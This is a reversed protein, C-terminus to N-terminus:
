ESVFRNAAALIAQEAAAIASPSEATKHQIYLGRWHHLEPIVLGYRFWMRSAIEHPQKRDQLMSKADERALILGADHASIPAVAGLEVLAGIVTELIDERTPSELAALTRLCPGDQGRQLFSAAIGPWDGPKMDGFFWRAALLTPNM